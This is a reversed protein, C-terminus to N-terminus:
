VGVIGFEVTEFQNKNRKKAIKQILVNERSNKQDMM